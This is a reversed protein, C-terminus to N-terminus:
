HSRALLQDLVGNNDFHKKQIQAWDGLTQQANLLEVQPFRDAYKKQAASDYVRYNNSALIDQAQPTYLFKLYATALNRTGHQDVVKDVVAVPFEALISVPPVVVDYDESKYDKGISKVESEFSLLVDGIGREAFSVTAARGGTDFVAVNALFQKIFVRIRTEDGNFKKNAYLWAALYTYRGNGSTKPNPFVLKVDGRVLDDWNKIHKPNGKRVLFATTSYYPSSSNPFQKQWDAAILNGQDHLVQVDTVQNFTVVDAQLGQLIAQAQKSSGAHSQNIEVTHGTQAKWQAQFAPNVAEFLERSVDYSSNLLSDQAHAPSVISAALAFVIGISFRSGGSFESRRSM